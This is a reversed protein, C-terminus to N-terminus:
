RKFNEYYLAFYIIPLFGIKHRISTGLDPEFIGQVLFYSFLILLTWFELFHKKRDKLCRALKIFLIYFLTLEWAVFALVQPSLLHKLAQVIPINVALYGYFIGFAEGYWTEQSIPSMIITNVTNAKEEAYDQRTLKSLFEGKVIGHSFSVFVAILIGTFITTFAKKKFRIFSILYMGVAFIPIILYYVRFFSFSVTLLLAYIVKERNSKKSLFIFPITSFMLFTIFEKTPMSMYIGLLLFAIYFVINKVSIIHFNSPIGIRYLIYTTISFQIVAILFFPLYKLGTIKYFMIAFPYSGVWGIENYKDYVIILTDNFYREPLLFVTLTSLVLFVSFLLLFWFKNKKIVKQM